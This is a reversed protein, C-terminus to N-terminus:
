TMWCVTIRTLHGGRGFQPTLKAAARLSVIRSDSRGHVSQARPFGDPCEGTYIFPNHPPFPLATAAWLVNRLLSKTSLYLIFIDPLLCFILNTITITM